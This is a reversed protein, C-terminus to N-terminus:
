EGVSIYYQHAHESDLHAQGTKLHQLIIVNDMPNFDRHRHALLSFRLVGKKKEVPTQNLAGFIDVHGLKGIWEAIDAEDKQVKKLSGRNGQSATIVTCHREAALAALNKWIDDIGHRPEANRLGSGPRLIDAYDVVVVDPIFDEQFELTDLSERINDVSASYRPYVKYMLNNGYMKEFSRINKVISKISPKKITIPQFYTEPVYSKNGAEGRCHTCPAYAPNYELPDKASARLIVKNNRYPYLCSGTQNKLCDFMPFLFSGETNESNIRNYFRKRCDNLSMELNFVAVKKRQTLASIMFEQMTFSKGIKFGGLIGVLWGKQLPGIMEGLAGPMIFNIDEEENFTNIIKAKDFFNEWGGIAKSLFTKQNLIQAAEDDKGIAILDLVKKSRLEMDRRSFYNLANDYIYDDNTGQNDVYESSIKKLFTSVIDASAKDINNKNVEYIKQINAEPAKKYNSYYELVWKGIIQAFDNAFFDLNILPQVKSLFHTSVIMATIIQKEVSSGIVKREYIM